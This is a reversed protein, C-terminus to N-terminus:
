RHFGAGICQPDLPAQTENANFAVPGMHTYLRDFADFLLGGQMRPLFPLEASPNEVDELLTLTNFEKRTWQDLFGLIGTHIGNTMFVLGGDFPFAAFEDSEADRRFREIEFKSSDQLLQIVQADIELELQFRSEEPNDQMANHILKEVENARGM